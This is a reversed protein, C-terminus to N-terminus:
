PLVASGWLSEGPILSLANEQRGPPALANVDAHPHCAAAGTPDGHPRCRPSYTWAPFSSPAPTWPPVETATWSSSLGHPATPSTQLWGLVLASLPLPCLPESESLSPAKWPGMSGCWAWTSQRPLHSGTPSLPSAGPRDSNPPPPPHSLPFHSASIHNLIVWGWDRGHAGPWFVM